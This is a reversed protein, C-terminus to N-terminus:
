ISKQERTVAWRDAASTDLLRSPPGREIGLSGGVQFGHCTDIHDPAGQAKREDLLSYCFVM